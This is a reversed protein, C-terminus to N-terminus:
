FQNAIENDDAEIGIGGGAVYFNIGFSLYLLSLNRKASSRM